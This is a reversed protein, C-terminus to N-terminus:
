KYNSINVKFETVESDKKNKFNKFKITLFENTDHYGIKYINESTVNDYVM